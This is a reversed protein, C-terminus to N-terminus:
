SENVTAKLGNIIQEAQEESLLNESYSLTINLKDNFQNFFIGLGPPFPVRPLHFINKVEQDMFKLNSYSNGLSSFSFSAFHKKSMWQLFFHVTKLSVIRLLFSANTIAEPLGTKVQEYMQEKIKALLLPFNDADSAPIKFLFFSLHNFFIENEPDEGTRTDLPVPIIYTLGPNNGAQFIRHMVQLSKALAYPMLMLYGANSYAINTFCRTEERNLNIVKFKAPRNLSNVPLVRPAEKSFQLFFRNVQRGAKFKEAWHNLHSPSCLSVLSSDKKQYYQQFLNLFTEAGKADLIRHDFVMGLLNNKGTDILIFALHEKKDKWPLSLQAALNELSSATHVTIPLMKKPLPAKWYPCLNLDRAPYGNLLPFKRIFSNLAEQLLLRDPAGKLELVVQSINGIGCQTKSTYDISNFIWDIGTLYQKMNNKALVGLWRISLKLIKM